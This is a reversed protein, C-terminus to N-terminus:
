VDQKSLREKAQRSFEVWWGRHWAERENPAAEKDYPNDRFSVGRAMDRQGLLFMLKYKKQEKQKRYENIDIPPNNM